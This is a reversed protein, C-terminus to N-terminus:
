ANLWRWYRRGLFAVGRILMPILYVLGFLVVFAAAATVVNLVWYMPPDARWEQRKGRELEEEIRRKFRLRESFPAPYDRPGTEFVCSSRDNSAAEFSAVCDNTDLYVAREEKDKATLPTVWVASVPRAKYTRFVFPAALAGVVALSLAIKWQRLVRRGSPAQQRLHQLFDIEEEPVKATRDLGMLRKAERIEPILKERTAPDLQVAHGERIDRGIQELKSREFYHDTCALSVMLDDDSTPRAGCNKCHNFAGWKLAGCKFCVAETM